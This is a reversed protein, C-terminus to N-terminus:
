VEMLEPSCCFFPNCPLVNGDPAEFTPVFNDKKLYKATYYFAKDDNPDVLRHQVFGMNWSDKLICSVKYTDQHTFTDIGWIIFHYHPRHTNKGYEGVGAYRLKFDYGKRILNIRFRKFFLQAHRVSVGDLPVHDNDYTLTIFWPQSDYCQTEMKCREVFSNIKAEKCLDCHGCPVELYVPFVNGTSEDLVFCNELDQHEIVPIRNFSVVGDKWLKDSDIVKKSPPLVCRPLTYLDYFDKSFCYKKGRITVNRYKLILDRLSPNVIINPHECIVQREM